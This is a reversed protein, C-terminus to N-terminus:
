NKLKNMYKDATFDNGTERHYAVLANLINVDGPFQILADQLIKISELKQGTTNLAVAYVYLYHANSPDLEIARQLYKVAKDNNKQRAQLLGLAYQSRPSPRGGYLERCAYSLRRM